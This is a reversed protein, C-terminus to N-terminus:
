SMKLTIPVCSASIRKPKLVIFCLIGNAGYRGKFPAFRPNKGMGTPCFPAINKCTLLAILCCPFWRNGNKVASTSIYEM